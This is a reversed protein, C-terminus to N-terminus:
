KLAEKIVELNKEMIGIYTTGNKIDDETVSQASDLTLIKANKSKSNNIVSKAIKKDNGELVIVVNLKEKDIKDSLFSITNLGVESEASCGKFAAYYEIGYDDTLYRFPFRDAFLLPKKDPSSSADRYKGDLEGLKEKYAALNEKYVSENKKDKKILADAIKDCFFSANNLSLWVHEDYEIEDTEEEKEPEMGEIEEEEKVKKGLIDMLNLAIMDKNEANKVTSEVWKDSAGGVYIFIDCESIKSIDSVSPQFSHLDIGNSILVSVDADKAKDGLINMVWDYQPFTTTVIKLKGDNANMNKGCGAFVSLLVLLCLAMCIIRKM